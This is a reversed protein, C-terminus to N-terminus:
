PQADPRWDIVILKSPRRWSTRTLRWPTQAKMLDGGVRRAVSEKEQRNSLFM